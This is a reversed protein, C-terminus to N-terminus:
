VKGHSTLVENLPDIFRKWNMHTIKFNKGIQSVEELNMVMQVGLAYALDDNRSPLNPNILITFQHRRINMLKESMKVFVSDERFNDDLIMIFIDFRGYSLAQIIATANSNERFEVEDSTLSQTVLSCDINHPNYILGNGEMLEDLLISDVQQDSSTSEQTAPKATEVKVNEALIEVEIKEEEELRIAFNFNRETTELTFQIVNGWYFEPSMSDPIMEKLLALIEDNGLPESLLVNQEASIGILATGTGVRFHEFPAVDPHVLITKLKSM